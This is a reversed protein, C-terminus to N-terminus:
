DNGPLAILQFQGSMKSNLSETVVYEVRWKYVGPQVGRFVAQDNVSIDIPANLLVKSGGDADLHELYLFPKGLGSLDFQVNCRWNKGRIYGRCIAIDATSGYLGTESIAAVQYFVAKNGLDAVVVEPKLLKIENQALSFGADQAKILSLKHTKPDVDFELLVDQVALASPVLETKKFAPARPLNELPLSKGASLVPVGQNASARKEGLEEHGKAGVEGTAVEVQSQRDVADFGVRFQTGRVGAVSTPTKVRFPADGDLRKRPVDVSIRGELLEIQIEPSPELVNVRLTKLQIVAGSLLNVTSADELTIAFQCSPPVKLVAGESLSMGARVTVPESGGLLTVGSCNLRSVTANSPRFKIRDRPLKIVKGVQVKNPNGLQNLKSVLSLGDNGNFFQAVLASLTDGPKITYHIFREDSLVVQSFAPGPLSLSLLCLGYALLGWIASASRSCITM